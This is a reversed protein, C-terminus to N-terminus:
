RGSGSRMRKEKRGVKRSDAGSTGETLDGDYTVDVLETPGSRPKRPDTLYAFTRGLPYGIELSTKIRSMDEEKRESVMAGVSAPLM